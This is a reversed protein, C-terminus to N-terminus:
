LQFTLLLHVHNYSLKWWPLGAPHPDDQQGQLARLGETYSVIPLCM